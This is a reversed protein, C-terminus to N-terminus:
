RKKKVVGIPNPVVRFEKTARILNFSPTKLQEGGKRYIENDKHVKNYFINFSNQDLFKTKGFDASSYNKNLYSEKLETTNSKIENCAYLDLYKNRELSTLKIPKKITRIEKIRDKEQEDISLIRKKQMKELQKKMELTKKNFTYDITKIKNYHDNRIQPKFIKNLQNKMNALANNNSLSINDKSIILDSKSQSLKRKKLKIKHKPKEKILEFTNKNVNIKISNNNLTIIKFDEKINNKNKNNIINDIFNENDNNNNDEIKNIIKQNIQSLEEKNNVAKLKNNQNSINEELIPSLYKLNDNIQSSKDQDIILIEEKENQFNNNDIYLLKESVNKNITKSENM